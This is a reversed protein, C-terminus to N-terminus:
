LMIKGTSFRVVEGLSGNVWLPRNNKVFMVKAGKKITLLEEAPIDNSKIKGAKQSLASKYWRSNVGNYARVYLSGEVEVVWIWTLTGFTEGDERYPAIHFDNRESIMEIAQSDLEKM